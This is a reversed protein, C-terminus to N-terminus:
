KNKKIFYSKDSSCIPCIWKKNLKDWAIEEKEEDYCFACVSCEYIEVISFYTKGSNCLPCTWNDHLESWKNGEKIEDYKFGCVKCQYTAM